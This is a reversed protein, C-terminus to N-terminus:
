LKDLTYRYTALWWDSDLVPNLINTRYFLERRKVYAIREEDEETLEVARSSSSAKLCLRRIRALKKKYMVHMSSVISMADVDITMLLDCLRSIDRDIPYDFRMNGPATKVPTAHFYCMMRATIALVYLLNGSSKTQIMRCLYQFCVRVDEYSGNRAIERKMYASKYMEPAKMLSKISEIMYEQKAWLEGATKIKGPVVDPEVYVTVGM